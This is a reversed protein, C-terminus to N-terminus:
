CHRSNLTSPLTDESQLHVIDVVDVLRESSEKDVNLGQSESTFCGMEKILVFTMSTTKSWSANVGNTVAFSNSHPSSSKSSNIKM